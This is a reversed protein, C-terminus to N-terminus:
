TDESVRDPRRFPGWGWGGWEPPVGLLSGRKGSTDATGAARGKAKRTEGQGPEATAGHDGKGADPGPDPGQVTRSPPSM